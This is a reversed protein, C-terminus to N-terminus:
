RDHRDQARHVPAPKLSVSRSGDGSRASTSRAAPWWAPKIARNLTGAGTVKISMLMGAEKHGPAGHHTSDSFSDVTFEAKGETTMETGETGNVKFDHQM